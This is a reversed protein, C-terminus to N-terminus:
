LDEVVVVSLLLSPFSKPGEYSFTFLRNPVYINIFTTCFQNYLYLSRDEFDVTFRDEVFDRLFFHKRQGIIGNFLEQGSPGLSLISM